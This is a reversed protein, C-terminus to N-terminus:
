AARDAPAHQLGGARARRCWAEPAGAAALAQGVLAEVDMEAPLQSLMEAMQRSEKRARALMPRVLGLWLFLALGVSVVFVAVHSTRLSDFM